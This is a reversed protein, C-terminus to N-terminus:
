RFLFYRQLENLRINAPTCLFAKQELHGAGVSDESPQIRCCSCLKQTSHALRCGRLPRPQRICRFLSENDNGKSPLPHRHRLKSTLKLVNYITNCLYIVM